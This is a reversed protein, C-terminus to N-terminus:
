SFGEIGFVANLEGKLFNSYTFLGVQNPQLVPMNRPVLSQYVGPNEKQLLRGLHCWLIWCFVGPVGTVCGFPIQFVWTLSGRWSSFCTCNKKELSIWYKPCMRLAVPRLGSGALVCVMVCAVVLSICVLWLRGQILLNSCFIWWPIQLSLLVSFKRVLCCTINSQVGSCWVAKRGRISAM